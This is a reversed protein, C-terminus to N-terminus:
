TDEGFEEVLRRATIVGVGKVAGSALYELIAPVGSPMDREVTRAKFQAGYAPHRMWDGTLTLSEGPSVGPMCGVVTTPEEQNEVVLRLVTYGNEENRFVVQDVRGELKKPEEAM